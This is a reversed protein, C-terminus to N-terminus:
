WVEHVQTDLEQFVFLNTPLVAVTADASFSASSSSAFLEQAQQEIFSIGVSEISSTTFEGSSNDVTTEIELPVSTEISGAPNASLIFSVEEGPLAGKVDVTVEWTGDQSLTPGGAFNVEYNANHDAVYAVRAISWDSTSPDNNEPFGKITISTVADEASPAVRFGLWKSTDGDVLEPGGEVFDEGITFISTEPPTVPEDEAFNIAITKDASSTFEGSSNTITAEVELSVEPAVNDKPIVSLVFSVEEGALAGIVEVTIEWTNDSSLTPGSVFNVQYNADQDAVKADAAILWDSESPNSNEPFGKITVSTVTDQESPELRFGLWKSSDADTLEPGGEVFDETLTFISCDKLSAPEDSISVASGAAFRAGRIQQPELILEPLLETFDVRIGNTEFGSVPTMRPEAYEVQIIDYGDDEGAGEVSALGGAAPAELDVTPDFNKNQLLAAQTAQVDEEATVDKPKIDFDLNLMGEDLLSQANRGLDMILGDAYEIAITGADGSVVQEDAFVRDGISLLRETGDTAIAKVLGAVSIVIGTGTM